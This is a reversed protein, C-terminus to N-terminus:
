ICSFEREVALDEDDNSENCFLDNEYKEEKMDFQVDRYYKDSEVSVKQLQFAITVTELCDECVMKPLQDNKTIRPIPCVKRIIEAVEFGDRFSFVSEAFSDTSKRCLRCKEEM